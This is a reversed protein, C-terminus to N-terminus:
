TRSSQANATIMTGELPYGADMWDHLGGPYHGVKEYGSRELFDAVARSASCADDSCYVITERNKLLVKGADRKNSLLISGPIRCAEYHWEDMAMVLQLPERRDLKAKLEDRKIIQVM